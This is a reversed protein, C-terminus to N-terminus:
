PLPYYPDYPISGTPQGVEGTPVRHIYLGIGTFTDGADLGTADLRIGYGSLFPWAPGPADATGTINGSIAGYDAAFELTATTVAGITIGSTFRAWENGDGDLCSLFPTRNAVVASTTFTAFVSLYREYVKGETIRTFRNGAGPNPPRILETWAEYERM